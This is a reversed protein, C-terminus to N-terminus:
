LPVEPGVWLSLLEADSPEEPEVQEVLDATLTAHLAVLELATHALELPEGAEVRLFPPRGPFWTLDISVGRSVRLWAENEDREGHWRAQLGLAGARERIMEIQQYTYRM